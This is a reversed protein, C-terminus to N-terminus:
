REVKYRDSPVPYTANPEDDCEEITCSKVQDWRQFLDQAYREAHERSAFRLGNFAWSEGTMERTRIGVKFSLQKGEAIEKPSSSGV